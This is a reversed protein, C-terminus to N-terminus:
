ESSSCSSSDSSYSDGSCSAPEPESSKVEDFTAYSQRSGEIIPPAYTTSPTECRHCVVRSQIYATKNCNLRNCTYM